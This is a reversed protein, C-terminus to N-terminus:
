ARWWDLVEIVEDVSGVITGGADICGEVLLNLGHGEHGLTSRLDTLLGVIGKKAPDRQMLAYFIGIECATGDDVLPGDLLAVVADATVLGDWDKQFITAPSTDGAALANEHPVFVEIGESRLRAACEDIYSREYPTFLPGAFYVRV